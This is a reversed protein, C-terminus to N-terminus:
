EKKSWPHHKEVIEKLKSRDLHMYIETTTISEHGLMMQISRLDAGNELLHTAFSHRFTHPSVNKTIEALQAANKVITFIMARTLGRGRRNLFLVDKNKDDIVQHNRVSDIYFHIWKITHSAIPVFREKSGKGLVKIFGEEFYLDSLRLQVLETVRLGCSYLVELMAKNRLGEPTHQDITAIIADVEELTLVDPLKRTQKPIDIFEVPHVQVYQELLMFDYFSKLSSLFRSQSSPAMFPAHDYLFLRVEEETVQLLSFKPDSLFYNVFKQIDLTYSIITNASLGRELKLYHKYLRLYHQSIEQNEEM